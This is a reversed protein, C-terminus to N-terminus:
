APGRDGKRDKAKFLLVDQLQKAKISLDHLQASLTDLEAAALREDEVQLRHLLTKENNVFDSVAQSIDM